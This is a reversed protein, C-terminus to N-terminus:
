FSSECKSFVSLSLFFSFFSLLVFSLIFSVIGKLTFRKPLMLGKEPRISNKVSFAFLALHKNEKELCLTARRNHRYSNM